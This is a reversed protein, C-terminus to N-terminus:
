KFTCFMDASRVHYDRLFLISTEGVTACSFRVEDYRSEDQVIGNMTRDLSYEDHKHNPRLALPSLNAVGYDDLARGAPQRNM